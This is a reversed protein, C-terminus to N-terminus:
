FGSFVAMKTMKKSNKHVKPVWFFFRDIPIEFNSGTEPPILRIGEVPPKEMEHDGGLGGFNPLRSSM